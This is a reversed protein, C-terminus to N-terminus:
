VVNPVQYPKRYARGLMNDAQEDNVFKENVPDFELTRGLQYTMDHLNLGLGWALNKELAQFTDFIYENELVAKPTKSFPVQSGLRLSINALHNLASSYHGELVDANLDDVNKSRVANIFSGFAGGPNVSGGLDELPEQVGGSKPYFINNKIRGESTFYENSVDRVDKSEGGVLGRVEFILPIGGYDCVFMQTNATEGQDKYGYRGGLSWVKTPLTANPIAWRAIDLQHVGQNGIDGNGTDWFWHWNYHVLNEHYPQQKAPGLWIDFDLHAPAPKYPKFGISWRPKCCYGKTALLDGYKGSQVAVIEKAVKESSRSQTGHQVIRNYKRAAEVAKRGEFINHSLPKEVYVDKGAQCAWITALSHWHNTTAISIADIKKDDLVKRLDQELKVKKGYTDQFSQAREQLVNKDPDCLTVIEVNEQEQFGKIHSKGRGHVGLVAMRVRDNAGFSSKPIYMPAALMATAATSKLFTRRKM